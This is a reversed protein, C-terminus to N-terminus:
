RASACPTAGRVKVYKRIEVKGLCEAYLAEAKDHRGMARALSAMNHLTQAVRDSKRM